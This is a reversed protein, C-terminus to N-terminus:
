SPQGTLERLVSLLQRADPYEIRTIDCAQTLRALLDLDDAVVNGDRDVTLPTLEAYRLAPSQGDPEANGWVVLGHLRYRGEHLEIEQPTPPHRRDIEARGDPDFELRPSELRVELTERDLLPAHVDVLRYGLRHLRRGLIDLIGGFRGDVLMADDGRVLLKANLGTADPPAPAFGELHRLAARLLRGRSDTRVVSLGGRYLFHLGRVHGNAEGLALSLNPPADVDSVVLPRLAGLLLAGMAEDNTRVGIILDGVRVAIPGAEV